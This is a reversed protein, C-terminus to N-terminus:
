DELLLEIIADQEDFNKYGVKEEASGTLALGCEPHAEILGAVEDHPIEGPLIFAGAPLSKNMWDKVDVKFIHRSMEMESVNKIASLGEHFFMLELGPDMAPRQDYPILIGVAQTESLAFRALDEQWTSMQLFIEPGEVWDVMEKIRGLNSGGEDITFAMIDVEYAAFYRADSLNDLHM